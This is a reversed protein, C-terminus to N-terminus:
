NNVGNGGLLPVFMATVSPGFSDLPVSHGTSPDELTIRGSEWLTVAYPASADIGQAGRKLAFARKVGRLFGGEALGFDSIVTGDDARAFTLRGDAKEIITVPVSNSVAGREGTLRGSGTAMAIITLALALGAIGFVMRMMIHSQRILAARDANIRIGPTATRGNPMHNM